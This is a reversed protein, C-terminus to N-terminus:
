PKSQGGPADSRDSIKPMATMQPNADGVGPPPPGPPPTPQGDPGVPPQPPAGTVPNIVAGQILGKAQEIQDSSPAQGTKILFALTMPNMMDQAGTLRLSINPQEPPPPSPPVIVTNPDLGSLAAIEKLVPELNVWGSKGYVNVFQNLRQLRQSADLLVTSDALISYSLANTVEPTFGQGLSSPDEYLAVLGAMVQGIGVFFSAVRAREKAMTTQVGQAIQESEGKTEVDAGSGVQNPGLTWSSTLDQKAIKEFLGDEQPYQARAVEGLVRSGDGQVPIVAQWVGKMLSQLVMPDVRNVDAWRMPISRERQRINQTRIKNIENVQPRGVSSDSPPLTDDTIYTLTLVRIPFIQSGLVLDSQEDYRQGKWPEDIVPDPRGSLFVVHHILSYKNTEPDYHFEKYFLEDFEVKHEAIAADRDLDATMYDLRHRDTGTYKDKDEPNLKFRTVAEAWSVRGSRGIWQANDFNSGSFDLPWLFDGPSIRQVLYRKDVVHPVTQMPVPTGDPMTGSQLIQSQSEPSLVSLDVGPVQKDQTIAEYSVMVIGVGAANICDPLCEEMAAEIGGKILFDNVRQEYPYVWPAQTDQGHDLRLRPVQSFLAAQKSKTLSWDLNVAVQDEDTQSAFPKGRRYDINTSWNNILKRRYSKCLDKAHRLQDNIEKRDFVGPKTPKSVSGDDKMTELVPQDAKVEADRITMLPNSININM